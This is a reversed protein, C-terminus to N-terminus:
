RGRATKYAAITAARRKAPSLLKTRKLRKESEPSLKMGEVALVAAIDADSLVYRVAIKGTGKSLKAM